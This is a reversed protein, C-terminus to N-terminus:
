EAWTDNGYNKCLYNTQCASSCFHVANPEGARREDWKGLMNITYKMVVSKETSGEFGM